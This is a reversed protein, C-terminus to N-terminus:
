ANIFEKYQEPSEFLIANDFRINGDPSYRGNIVSNLTACFAKKNNTDWFIAMEGVIPKKYKPESVKECPLEAIFREIKELREEISPQQEGFKSMIESVTAKRFKFRWSGDVSSPEFKGQTFYDTCVLRNISIWIEGCNGEKKDTMAALALFLPANFKGLYVCEYLNKSAYNINGMDGTLGGYSNTLYENEKNHWRSTSYENYGMKLLEDKLYKEYQEKTCDMSIKQTFM